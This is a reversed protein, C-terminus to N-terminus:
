QRNEDVDSDKLILAKLTKITENKENLLNSMNRNEAQLMDNCRRLDGLQFLLEQMTFGDIILRNEEM